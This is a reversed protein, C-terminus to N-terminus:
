PEEIEKFAQRIAEPLEKLSRYGLRTVKKRDEIIVAYAKKGDVSVALAAMDYGGSHPAQGSGVVFEGSRVMKGTVSSNKKFLKLSKKDFIPRVAARFASSKWADFLYKGELSSVPAANSKRSAGKATAMPLISTAVLIALLFRRM